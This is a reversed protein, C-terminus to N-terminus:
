EGNYTTFIQVSLISEKPVRIVTGAVKIAKLKEVNIWNYVTQISIGFFTAVEQPTYLNKNPLGKLTSPHAQDALAEMEKLTDDIEKDSPKRHM